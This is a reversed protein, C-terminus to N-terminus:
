AIADAIVKIANYLREFTRKSIGKHEGWLLTRVGELRVEFFVLNDMSLFMRQIMPTQLLVLADQTAHDITLQKDFADNGTLVSVGRNYALPSPKNAPRLFFEFNLGEKRHYAAVNLHKKNLGLKTGKHGYQVILSSLNASEGMEVLLQPAGTKTARQFGRKEGIVGIIAGFADFSQDVKRPQVVKYWYYIIIVALLIIGGIALLLINDQM